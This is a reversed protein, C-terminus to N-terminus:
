GAEELPQDPQEPQEPAHGFAADIINMTRQETNPILHTYTKLTFGPDAHGLRASVVLISEGADLLVSAYWHRMGHMMNARQTPVEAAELADRWIRNFYNKNLAKRERSTILLRHTENRTATDPTERKETWPLEVKPAPFQQLHAALEKRIGPPIPITRTKEYKPLAYALRNNAFVKIQRNITVEGRLFDVDEVALGFLEGQRLGLGAGLRVLIKYREPLKEHIANIQDRTYPVVKHARKSPSKVSRADCPNRAIRQDDTAAALITNVLGYYAAKSTESGTWSAILAKITSPEIQRLQLGGIIPNIHLRLRLEHQALSRADISQVQRWREAYEAFTMRGADVDIYAGRDKDVEVTRAYRDADIKRRFTKGREKGAPDLYRVLYRKTGDQLTRTKVHAM